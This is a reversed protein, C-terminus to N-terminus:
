RPGVPWACAPGFEYEMVSFLRASSHQTASQQTEHAHCGERRPLDLIANRVISADQSEPDHTQAWRMFHGREIVHLRAASEILSREQPSVTEEGGLATLMAVVEAAADRLLPKLAPIVAVGHKRLARLDRPAIRAEARNKVHTRLKSHRIRQRRRLEHEDPDLDVHNRNRPKYGDDPVTM